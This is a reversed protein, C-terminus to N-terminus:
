INVVMEWSTWGQFSTPNPVFRWVPQISLTPFDVHQSTSRWVPSLVDGAPLIDWMGEGREWGQGTIEGQVSKAHFPLDRVGPVRLSSIRPQEM